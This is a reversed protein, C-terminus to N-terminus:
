WGQGNTADPHVRSLRFEGGDHKYLKKYDISWVVEHMAHSARAAAIASSFRWFFKQNVMYKARLIHKFFLRKMKYGTTLYYATLMLAM